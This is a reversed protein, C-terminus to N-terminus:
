IQNRQITYFQEYPVLNTIQKKLNKLSNFVNLNIINNIVIDKNPM